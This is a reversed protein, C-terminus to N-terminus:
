KGNLLSRFLCEGKKSELSVTIIVSSCNLWAFARLLIKLRAVRSM